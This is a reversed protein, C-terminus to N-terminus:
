AMRERHNRVMKDVRDRLLLANAAQDITAPERLMRAEITQFNIMMHAVKRLLAGEESTLKRDEAASVTQLDAVIQELAHRAMSICRRVTDSNQNSTSM